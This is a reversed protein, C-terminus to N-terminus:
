KIKKQLNLQHKYGIVFVIALVICILGVVIYGIALFKNKGGFLNVNTIVFIKKGGFQSVDFVNNIKVKYDGPELDQHIRGWLKRFNPLGSPRM